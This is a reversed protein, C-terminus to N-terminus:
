YIKDERENNEVRKKKKKKLVNIFKLIFINRISCM